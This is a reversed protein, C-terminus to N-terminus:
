LAIVTAFRALGGQFKENKITIIIGDNWAIMGQKCSYELEKVLLIM